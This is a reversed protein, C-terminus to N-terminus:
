DGMGFVVALCGAGAGEKGMGTRTGNELPSERVCVSVCVVRRGKECWKILLVGRPLWAWAHHSVRPPRDLPFAGSPGWLPVRAMPGPHWLSPRSPSIHARPTCTEKDVSLLHTPWRLLPRHGSSPACPLPRNDLFGSEPTMTFFCIEQCARKGHGLLSEDTSELAANSCEGPQSLTQRRWLGATSPVSIENHCGKPSDM